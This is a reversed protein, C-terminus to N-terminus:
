GMISLPAAEMDFCDINEERWKDKYFPNEQKFTIIPNIKEWIKWRADRVSMVTKGTISSVEELSKGQILLKCYRKQGEPLSDVIAIMRKKGPLTSYDVSEILRNKVLFGSLVRSIGGERSLQEVGMGTEMLESVKMRVSPDGNRLKMFDRLIIVGSQRLNQVEQWSYGPHFEAIEKDSLDEMYYLQILERCWDPLLSILSILFNKEESKVMTIDADESPYPSTYYIHKRFKARRKETAMLTLCVRVTARTLFGAAHSDNQISSRRVYLIGMATSAVDEALSPIGFHLSKLMNSAIRTIREYHRKYMYRFADEKGNHLENISFFYGQM